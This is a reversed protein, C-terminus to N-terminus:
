EDRKGVAYLNSLGLGQTPKEFLARLLVDSPVVFLKGFIDGRVDLRNGFLSPLRAHIPIPRLTVGEAGDQRFLAVGDLVAFRAVFQGFELSKRKDISSM